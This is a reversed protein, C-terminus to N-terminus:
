YSASQVESCSSRSCPVRTSASHSSRHSHSKGAPQPRIRRLDIDPIFSAMKRATKRIQEHSLREAAGGRTSSTNAPGVFSGQLGHCFPCKRSFGTSLAPPALCPGGGM